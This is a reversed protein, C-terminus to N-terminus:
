GTPVHIPGSFLAFGADGPTFLLTQTVDNDVSAGM